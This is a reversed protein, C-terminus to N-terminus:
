PAGECKGTCTSNAFVGCCIKGKCGVTECGYYGFSCSLTYYCNCNGLDKETPLNTSKLKGNKRVEDLINLVHSPLEKELHLLEFTLYYDIPKWKLDILVIDQLEAAKIEFEVTSAEEGSFYKPVLLERAKNLVTIETDTWKRSGILLDMKEQWFRIKQKSSLQYLVAQTYRLSPLKCLDERTLLDFYKRNKDIWCDICDESKASEIISDVIRDQKECGIITIFFSLFLFHKLFQNMKM